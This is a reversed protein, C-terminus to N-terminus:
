QKEDVYSARRRSGAMLDTPDFRFKKRQWSDTSNNRISDMDKGQDFSRDTFCNWGDQETSAPALISKDKLVLCKNKVPGRGGFDGPVLEREESWSEGSDSSTKAMTQWYPIENGVKYFLTLLKGQALLVPNWCPIGERDAIKVPDSWGNERKKSFWIAVDPAKEHSGAFWAVGLTGDPLRCITSAHCQLFWRKEEFIHQHELVQYSIEEM